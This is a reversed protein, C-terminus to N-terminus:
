TNGNDVEKRAWDIIDKIEAEKGRNWNREIGNCNHLEAYIKDLHMEYAIEEVKEALKEAIKKWTELEEIFKQREYTELEYAKKYKEKEEFIEKNIKSLVKLKAKERKLQKDKKELESLVNKTSIKFEESVCYKPKATSYKPLVVETIDLFNEIIEIDKDINM